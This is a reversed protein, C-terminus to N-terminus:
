WRDHVMYIQFFAIWLFSLYQASVFFKYNEVDVLPGYSRDLDFCLRRKGFDLQIKSITMYWIFKM